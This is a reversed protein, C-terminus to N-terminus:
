RERGRRFLLRVTAGIGGAAIFGTGLASAAALPLRSRLKAAFGMEARLSGVAIALQERELDIERRLQDAGREEVQAM